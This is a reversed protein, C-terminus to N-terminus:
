AHDAALHTKHDVVIWGCPREPYLIFPGLFSFQPLVRIVVVIRLMLAKGGDCEKGIQTPVPIQEKDLAERERPGLGGGLKNCATLIKVRKKRSICTIPGFQRVEFNQQRSRFYIAHRIVRYRECEM